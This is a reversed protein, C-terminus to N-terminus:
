AFSIARMSGRRVISRPCSPTVLKAFIPLVTSLIAFHFDFSDSKELSSPTQITSESPDQSYFDLFKNSV